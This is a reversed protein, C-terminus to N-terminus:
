YLPSLCGPISPLAEGWFVGNEDEFMAIWTLGNGPDPTPASVYQDSFWLADVPRVDFAWSDEFIGGEFRAIACGESSEALAELVLGGGTEFTVLRAAPEPGCASTDVAVWRVVGPEGVVPNAQFASVRACGPVDLDIGFQPRQEGAGLAEPGDNCGPDSDCTPSDPEPCGALLFCSLLAFRRM